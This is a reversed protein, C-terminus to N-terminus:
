RFAIQDNDGAVELDIARQLDLSLGAHHVGLATSTAAAM